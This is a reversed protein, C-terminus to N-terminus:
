RSEELCDRLAQEEAKRHPGIWAWSANASRQLSQAVKLGTLRLTVEDLSGEM